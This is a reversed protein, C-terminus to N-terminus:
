GGTETDGPKGPQAARATGETNLAPEPGQRHACAVQGSYLSHLLSAHPETLTPVSKAKILWSSEM